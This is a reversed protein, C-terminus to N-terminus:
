NNESFRLIYEILDIVESYPNMDYIHTRKNKEHFKKLDKFNKRVTDINNEIITEFIRKTTLSKWKKYEPVYKKIEDIYNIKEKTYCQYHELIFLEFNQNSFLIEIWEQKFLNKIIDIEKKEKITDIDVLYFVKIKGSKISSNNIWYKNKLCNQIIGIQRKTNSINIEWIKHPYVKVKSLKWFCQLYIKETEWECFAFVINKIIKRKM